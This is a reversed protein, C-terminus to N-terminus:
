VAPDNPRHDDDNRQGSSKSSRAALLEKATAIGQLATAGMLAHAGLELSVVADELGTLGYHGFGVIAAAGFVHHLDIKM